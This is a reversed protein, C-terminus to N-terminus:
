ECEHGSWAAHRQAGASGDDIDRARHERHYANERRQALAVPGLDAAAALHPDAQELSRNKQHRLVNRLCSDGALNRCRNGTASHTTIQTPSDVSHEFRGIALVDEDADGAISLPPAIAAFEM